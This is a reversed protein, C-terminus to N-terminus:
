HTRPSVIFVFAFIEITPSPNGLPIANEISKISRDDFLSTEPVSKLSDLVNPPNTPLSTWVLWSNHSSTYPDSPFIFYPASYRIVSREIEPYRHPTFAAPVNFTSGAGPRTVSMEEDGSLPGLTQQTRTSKHLVPRTPHTRPPFRTTTKEQDPTRFKLMCKQTEMMAPVEPQLKRQPSLHLSIHSSMNASAHKRTSQSHSEECSRSPQEQDESQSMSRRVMSMHQFSTQLTQQQSSVALLSSM